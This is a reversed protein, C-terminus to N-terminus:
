PQQESAERIGIRNGESDIAYCLVGAMGRDTPPMLIRGGATEIRRAMGEIDGRSDFIPTPGDACPRLDEALLLDASVPGEPFIAMTGGPMVVPEGQLMATYFRVAREMDTVPIDVWVITNAV